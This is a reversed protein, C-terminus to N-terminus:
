SGVDDYTEDILQEHVLVVRRRDDTLRTKAVGRPPRGNAWRAITGEDPWVFELQGRVRVLGPRVLALPVGHSEGWRLAVLSQTTRFDDALAALDTGHDRMASRFARSPAVLAAALYDCAEETDPEGERRLAWHALEHAITHGLEADVVDRRVVIRWRDNVRVLMATDGCLAHRPVVTIGDAGLLARALRVPSVADAPDEGAELYLADAMGELLAADMPSHFRQPRRAALSFLTLSARSGAPAFNRRPAVRDKCRTM